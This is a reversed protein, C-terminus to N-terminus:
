APISTIMKPPTAAPPPPGTSGNLNYAVPMRDGRIPDRPLAARDLGGEAVLAVEIWCLRNGDIGVHEDPGLVVALLEAPVVEGGYVVLGGEVLAFGAGVVAAHRGDGSVGDAGPHHHRRFGRAGSAYVGFRSLAYLAM